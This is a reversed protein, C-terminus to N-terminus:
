LLVVYMAAKSNITGVIHRLLVFCSLVGESTQIERAVSFELFVKIRSVSMGHDIYHCWELKERQQFM